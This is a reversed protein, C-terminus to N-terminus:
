VAVEYYIARCGPAGALVGEKKFTYAFAGGEAPHQLGPLTEGPLIWAFFEAGKLILSALTVPKLRSQAGLALQASEPLPIPKSFQIMREESLPLEPRLPDFVALDSVANIACISGAGDFYVFAGTLPVLCPGSTLRAERYSSGQGQEANAHDAGLKGWDISAPYSFAFTAADSPVGALERADAQLTIKHQPSLDLTASKLAHAVPHLGVHTLDLRLRSGLVAEGAEVVALDTPLPLLHLPALSGPFSTADGEPQAFLHEIRAWNGAKDVQVFARLV